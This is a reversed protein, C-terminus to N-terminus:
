DTMRRVKELNKTMESFFSNTPFRKGDSQKLTKGIIGLINNVDCNYM